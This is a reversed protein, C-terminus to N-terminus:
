YILGLHHTIGFGFWPRNAYRWKQGESSLPADFGLNLNLNINKYGFAYALGISMGIEDSDQVFEEFSKITSIRIPVKQIGLFIGLGGHIGQKQVGQPEFTTKGWKAGVYLNVNLSTELQNPITDSATDKKATYSPRYKFPIVMLGLEAVSYKIDISSKKIALTKRPKLLFFFSDPKDKKNIYSSDSSNSVQDFYVYITDQSHKLNAKLSKQPIKKPMIEKSNPIKYWLTDKSDQKIFYDLKLPNQASLFTSLIINLSIILIIKM